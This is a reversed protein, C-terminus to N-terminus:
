CLNRIAHAIERGSQWRFVYSDSFYYYVVGNPFLAITIGSVGSMFPTWVADECGLSPGSDYAWFGNNYRLDGAGAVLGRDAPDQQLSASLMAQDLAPGGDITAGAALWMAVRLVDDLEYTLGYGTFPQRERDDTRLTRDMLPSLALDQWIPLLLDDYIDAGEGEHQRLLRQLAVGVVYTDSTHYVFATGPQSRREYYDCAFAIKAAHTPSFIFSRSAESQEDAQPVKSAYNGTAMDLAHEISVDQWKKTDCEHVLGGISRELSGPLRKEIRMAAVAAILSKATSYAPLPLSDCFPYPGHRTPCSSRYNSGDVVIGFVSLDDRRIGDSVALDQADVGPYALKLETLPRVPLKQQRHKRFRAIVEQADDPRRERYNAAATGWLNFQLYGCTESSFQYAVRSVDGADTFLWTMVGNHVCDANRERLAVPLAARWWKGDSAVRWVLGPQVIWEWYPHGSRASGRRTPILHGEYQVVDIDIAPLVSLGPGVSGSRNWLDVLVEFGSAPSAPLSLTASRAATAPPTEPGPAFERMPVPADLPQDGLLFQATLIQASEGAADVTATAAVGAVLLAAALWGSDPTM